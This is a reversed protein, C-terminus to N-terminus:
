EVDEMSEEEVAKSLAELERRLNAAEELREMLLLCLIPTARKIAETLDGCLLDATQAAKTINENKM